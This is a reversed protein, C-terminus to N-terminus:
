PGFALVSPARIGRRIVRLQTTEGPAYIRVRRGEGVYVNGSSDCVLPLANRIGATLTRTPITKGAAYELVSPGFSAFLDGKDDLALGAPASPTGIYYTGGSPLTAYFVGISNSKDDAVYISGSSDVLVAVPQALNESVTTGPSVAGPAYVTITKNVNAAYLDGDSGIGLTPSDIGNTITRTPSTSGPDFVAVESSLSVYVTGSAGVVMNNPLGLGPTNPISLTRLLNSSDKAYVTVLQSSRNMVYLNGASDFGLSEPDSIKETIRRAIKASGSAYVSVFGTGSPPYNRNAVYLSSYEADAKHPLAESGVVDSSLPLQWLSSACGALAVVLLSYIHPRIM